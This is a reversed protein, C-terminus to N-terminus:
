RKAGEALSKRDIAEPQKELWGHNVMINYIKIGESRIDKFIKDYILVIDPRMSSSLGSGYYALAANELFALHSMMLKDSFPSVTSNTVGIDWAHPTILGEKDLISNFQDIHRASEEVVFLAFNRVDDTEAVQSFATALAKNLTNKKTNFFLNNIESANLPRPNGLLNSILGTKEVFEVNKLSPISPAHSYQGKAQRYKVIKNLLEKTTACCEFFYNRLDERECVTIALSYATLGHITMIETYVALFGDTFLRPANQNVDNKTFGIPIQFNAEKFFSTIQTIHKQSAQFASELIPQLEKDEVINLFYKFVCISLSDSMYQTWLSSVEPATLSNKKTNILTNHLIQNLFDTLESDSIGSKKKKDILQGFLNPLNNQDIEGVIKNM